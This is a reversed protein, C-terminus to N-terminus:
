LILMGKCRESRLNAIKRVMLKRSRQWSKQFINSFKQDFGDNKAAIKVSNQRFQPLDCIITWITQMKCFRPSIDSIKESFKCLKNFFLSAPHSDTFHGGGGRRTMFFGLLCGQIRLGAACCGEAGLQEM